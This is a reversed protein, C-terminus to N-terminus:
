RECLFRRALNVVLPADGNIVFVIFIVHNVYNKTSLRLWLFPSIIHSIITLSKSGFWISM